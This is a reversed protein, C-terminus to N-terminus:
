IGPAHVGPGPLQGLRAGADSGFYSLPRDDDNSTGAIDPLLIDGEELVYVVKGQYRASLSGREVIVYFQNADFGRFNGSDVLTSGGGADRPM